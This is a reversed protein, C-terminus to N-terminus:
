KEPLLLSKRASALLWFYCFNYKNFSFVSNVRDLLFFPEFDPIKSIIVPHPSDPLTIKCTLMATKESVTSYNEPLSPWGGLFFQGMRRHGIRNCIATCDALYRLFLSFDSCLFLGFFRMDVFHKDSVNVSYCCQCVLHQVVFSRQFILYGTRSTNTSSLLVESINEVM